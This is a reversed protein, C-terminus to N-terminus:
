QDKSSFKSWHTEINQLEVVPSVIDTYMGKKTFLYNNQEHKYLSTFATNTKFNMYESFAVFNQSM